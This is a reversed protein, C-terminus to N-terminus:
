FRPPHSGLSRRQDWARQRAELDYVDVSKSLYAEMENHSDAARLAKGVARMFTAIHKLIPM